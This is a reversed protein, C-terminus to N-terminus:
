KIGGLMSALVDHNSDNKMFWLIPCISITVQLDRKISTLPDFNNQETSSMFVTRAGFKMSILRVTTLFNNEFGFIHVEAPLLSTLPNSDTAKM